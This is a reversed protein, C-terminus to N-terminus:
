AFRATDQCFIFGFRFRFRVRFPPQLPVPSEHSFFLWCDLTAHRLWTRVMWTLYWLIAVLEETDSFPPLCDFRTHKPVMNRRLPYLCFTSKQAQERAKSMMYMCPLFRYPRTKLHYLLPKRGWAAVAADIGLKEREGAIWDNWDEHAQREVNPAKCIDAVLQM